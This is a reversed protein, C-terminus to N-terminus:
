VHRRIDMIFGATLTTIKRLRRASLHSFGLLDLMTVRHGAVQSADCYLQARRDRYSPCDRLIHPIDDIGGCAPCPLPDGFHAGPGINAYGSRLRSIIRLHAGGDPLCKLWERRKRPHWHVYQITSRQSRMHTMQQARITARIRRRMTQHIDFRKHPIHFPSWPPLPVPNTLGAVETPAATHLVAMHVEHAVGYFTTPRASLLELERDQADWQALTDRLPHGSRFALIKYYSRLVTQSRRSALSSVSCENNVIAAPTNSRAGLISRLCSSQVAELRRSLYPAIACYVESGYEILSRVWGKYLTILAPSNRALCGGRLSRIRNVRKTAASRLYEIHDKFTLGRDFHIGLLLCTESQAVRNGGFMIGGRAEIDLPSSRAPRFVFYKTKDGFSLRLERAWEGIVRMDHNIMDVAEQSSATTYLLTIDDAFEIDTCLLRDGCDSILLTFLLPSMSSGQPLGNEFRHYETTAPRVVRYRRDSIFDSVYALLRGRLGLQHLKHRLADGFVRDYAKEVDLRVLVTQKRHTFGRQVQQTLLILPHVSSSHHRFGFQSAPIHFNSEAWHYLRQNLISECVRTSVLLLSIPRHSGPLSHDRGPKPLPVLDADKAPEPLRGQRFSSQCHSLVCRRAAAGSNRYFWPPLRDAGAASDKLADLTRELEGPTIDCNYQQTDDLSKFDASYKQMYLRVKMAHAQDYTHAAPTKSVGAFHLILKEGKAKHQVVKDGEVTDYFADASKGELEALLRWVIPGKHDCAYRVWLHQAKSLSGFLAHSYRKYLKEFRKRKAANQPDARFFHASKNLSAKLQRLERSYWPRSDHASGEVFTMCEHASAEFCAQIRSLQQELSLVDIEELLPAFHVETVARFVEKSASRFLWKPASIVPQSALPRTSITVCIPRHESFPFEELVRWTVFPALTLTAIALDICTASRARRTTARRVNTPVGIDNVLVLSYENLLRSLEVGASARLGSAPTSPDWWEDSANFDGCILSKPPLRSFIRELGGIESVARRPPLYVNGITVNGGDRLFIRLWVTAVGPCMDSLQRQPNVVITDRVIFAVGGRKHELTHYEHATYYVRYGRVAPPPNVNPNWRVEQVAAVLCGHIEMVRIVDALRSYSMSTVNFQLIRLKTRLAESVLDNEAPSM